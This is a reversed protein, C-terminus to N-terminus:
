PRFGTELPRCISFLLSKLSFLAAACRGAVASPTPLVRLSRLPSLISQSARRLSSARGNPSVARSAVVANSRDTLCRRACLSAVCVRPSRWRALAPARVLRSLPSALAEAATTGLASRALADLGHQCSAARFIPSPVVKPSAGDVAAQIPPIPQDLRDSRCFVHSAPSRRRAPPPKGVTRHGHAAFDLGDDVPTAATRGGVARGPERADRQYDTRHGM